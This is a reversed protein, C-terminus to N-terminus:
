PTAKKAKPTKEKRKKGPLEAILTPNVSQLMFEIDSRTLANKNVITKDGGIQEYRNYILSYATRKFDNRVSKEIKRDSM